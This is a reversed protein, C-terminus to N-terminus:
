IEMLRECRPDELYKALKIDVHVTKKSFLGAKQLGDKIERERVYESQKWLEKHRILWLVVLEHHAKLDRRMRKIRKQRMM